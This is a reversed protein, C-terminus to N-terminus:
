GFYRIMRFIFGNLYSAITGSEILIGTLGLFGDNHNMNLCGINKLPKAMPVAIVADNVKQALIISLSLFCLCALPSFSMTLVLDPLQQHTIVIPLSEGFPPPAPHCPETGYM